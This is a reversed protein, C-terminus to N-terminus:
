AHENERVPLPVDKLAEIHKIASPRIKRFRSAEFGFDCPDLNYGGFRLCLVGEWDIRVGEVTLIDGFQPGFGLHIKKDGWVVEWPGRKLCLALDGKQWDSM